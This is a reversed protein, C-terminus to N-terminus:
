TETTSNTVSKDNTDIQKKEILYIIQIQQFQCLIISIFYLEAVQKHTDLLSIVDWCITKWKCGKHVM